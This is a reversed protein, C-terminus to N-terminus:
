GRHGLEDRPDVARGPPIPDDDIPHGVEVDFPELLGLGSRPLRDLGAESREQRDARRGVGVRLRDGDQQKLDRDDAAVGRTNM